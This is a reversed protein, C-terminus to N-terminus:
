AKGANVWNGKTLFYWQQGDRVPQEKKFEIKEIFRIGRTNRVDVSAVINELKMTEFGFRIIPISVEQM